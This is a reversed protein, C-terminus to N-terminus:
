ALRALAARAAAVRDQGAEPGASLYADLRAVVMRPSDSPRLPIGLDAGVDLLEAWCARVRTRAQQPTVAGAAGGAATGDRTGGRLRRRRLTVRATAPAALLALGALAVLAWMVGRLVGRVTKSGAPRRSTGTQQGTEHQKQGPDPKWTNTGLELSGA